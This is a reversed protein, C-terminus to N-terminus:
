VTTAEVNQAARRRLGQAVAENTRAVNAALTGGPHFLSSTGAVLIDAGAEIMAPINEFSVNGDVEIPVTCGHEQLFQRVDAIKAFASPVLKQGAFGPNVTMVLVYDLRDLVYKLVSPPTHPNLAVGAQLGRERILALTRDLHTCSEAHVAVRQAGCQAVLNVMLDNNTVMLHVDLPLRTHKCLQELPPLGLTLNPAFQGDMIDWHLLHVGAAELQRTDDLLQLQNACMLSPAIQIPGTQLRSTSSSAVASVPDPASAVPGEVSGEGLFAAQLYRLSERLSAALKFDSYDRGLKPGGMELYAILRRVPVKAANQLLLERIRRADIIGRQREAATFGFTSDFRADTNKLHLEYLHEYTAELLEENNFVVEGEANAYGHAVDACYGVQATTTPYARHHAMLEAAMEEIEDPRTPPEALCSMPEITLWKVGREAAYGMLEKMHRVYCAMGQAKTEMLDRLVAGPNSGVSEAGLLSGVEIFREYNRRAVGEFGPETRFFGGLERHATFLSGITVRQEAAQGRLERFFDDPLQYAEFFSGFQVHRIGEEALLKFLWPFSYRYEIPDSKVGLELQLGSM